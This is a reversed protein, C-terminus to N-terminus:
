DSEERGQGKSAIQRGHGMSTNADHKVTWVYLWLSMSTCYQDAEPGSKGRGRGKIVGKFPNPYKRYRFCHQM